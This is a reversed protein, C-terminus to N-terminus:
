DKLYTDGYFELATKVYNAETVVEQKMQKEERNYSVLIAMLSSLVIAALAVLCMNWYIKRKM